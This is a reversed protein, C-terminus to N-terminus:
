DRATSDAEEIMLLVGQVSDNQRLPLTTVNCRMPKGRRNTGEVVLHEGESEGNLCARIPVHLTEVPLGIDLTFFSRDMVEESRLGWFDTSMANWATVRLERDLAIVGGRLSALISRLFATVQDLEDERSRMADNLTQLEENTSQLEENMTELEENTSQLEENTTELEEVASQLEENTTELEENTSQLEEYATELEQNAHELERQLRSYRTTDVFSIAIGHLFGVEDTLPVFLVDCTGGSSHPAGWAVGTVTIARQTRYLEDLRSRLELPRYSLELDQLPRGLDTPVLQFLTRAQENALVVAGDNDVVIQAVPSTEFAADRAPATASPDVPASGRHHDGSVAFMRDRLLPSAVRSFFRRKLDIPTFLSSRSLLTEARGLFLTGTDNLALAFRNLIRSQMEANFYMLVNRCALIDIRSIPADYMLDHRGFILARRLDARFTYRGDRTREFYRERLAPTLEDLHREEYTGQRAQALTADDADTAYIKVRNRFAEVGMAEALVIALSYAEEGSACGASWVRVRDNEGKRDLMPLIVQATLETWAEPDRFFRTVNILLENFLEKFEDPHVELYEIFSQYDAVGLTSMRKDIRRMLSAPKYGTLDLGRSRRLYTLLADFAAKQEAKVEPKHRVSSRAGAEADQEVDPEIEPEDHDTDQEAIQETDQEASHAALAAGDVPAVLEDSSEDTTQPTRLFADTM